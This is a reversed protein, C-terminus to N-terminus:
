SFAGMITGRRGMIVVKIGVRGEGLLSQKAEEAM